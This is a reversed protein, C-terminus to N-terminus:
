RSELAFTVADAIGKAANDYHYSAVLERSRASQAAYLAPDSLLACAADTWRELDRELIYGNEGDRVLEGAVGASAMTLVPLGAACAENAVVGWPDYLTPFLMIRAAAYYGPLEAQTAFGAFECEVDESVRAAQSRLRSELEGSGVFLLSTKRGLRHSASQAVDIAFGPLKVPAFRGCFIFDFRRASKPVGPYVANDTCLHSQFLASARAGYARYLDLSGLSAGVFAASHRYVHKRVLRHWFGLTRESVVTGDTMPIHLVGHFRAYAYALLHTPNFGTTIVVDPSFRKLEGWIDPNIHIYRGRWTLIRERMFTHRYRGRGMNWDRNPERASCYFICIELERYQALREFVPIRYPAPINTILAVRRRGGQPVQSTVPKGEGLETAQNM